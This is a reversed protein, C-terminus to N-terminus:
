LYALRCTNIERRAEEFGKLEEDTLVPCNLLTQLLRQRSEELEEPSRKRQCEKGIRKIEELEEASVIPKGPVTIMVLRDGIPIGHKKVYEDTLVEPEDQKETKKSAVSNPLERVLRKQEEPSLQVALDFVYNYNFGTAVSM